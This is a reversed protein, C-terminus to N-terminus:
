QKHTHIKSKKESQSSHLMSNSPSQGSCPGRKTTVSVGTLLNEEHCLVKKKSKLSFYITQDADERIKQTATIIKMSQRSFTHIIVLFFGVVGHLQKTHKRPCTATFFRLPFRAISVRGGPRSTFSDDM